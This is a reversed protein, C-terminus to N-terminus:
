SAGGLCFFEDVATYVSRVTIEGNDTSLYVTRSEGEDFANFPYLLVRAKILPDEGDERLFETEVAIRSYGSTLEAYITGDKQKDFVTLLYSNAPHYLNRM